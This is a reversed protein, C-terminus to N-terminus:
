DTRQVEHRDDEFSRVCLEPTAAERSSRDPRELPISRGSPWLTRPCATFLADFTGLWQLYEDRDEPSLSSPHKLRLPREFFLDNFPKSEPAQEPVGPSSPELCREVFSMKEQLRYMV